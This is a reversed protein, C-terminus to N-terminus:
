HKYSDIKSQSFVNSEKQFVVTLNFSLGEMFTMTRLKSFPHVTSFHNGFSWLAHILFVCCCVGKRSRVV